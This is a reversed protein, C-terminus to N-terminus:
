TGDGREVLVKARLYLSVSQFYKEKDLALWIKALSARFCASLAAAKAVPLSHMYQGDHGDHMTNWPLSTSM